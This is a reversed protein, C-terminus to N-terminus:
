TMEISPANLEHWFRGYKIIREVLCLALWIIYMQVNKFCVEVLKCQFEDELNAM